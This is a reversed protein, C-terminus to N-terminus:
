KRRGGGCRELSARAPGTVQHQGGRALTRLVPVAGAPCMAGLAAAAAAQVAPFAASEEAARLLPPGAAADGIEGLAYAISAAVQVAAADGFARERERGLDEILGAVMRRDGMGGIMRVAHTRVAVPQARDRMVQVFLEAAGPAGCSALASLSARRVEVDDDGLAAGRLAKAPAARECRAGLASAAARRVRPWRDGALVGALAADGDGGRAAGSASAEGLAEAALERVGPDVDRTATALAALVNPARSRGLATVAVRRLANQEAAERGTAGSVAPTTLFRAVAEIAEDAGLAGAAELLRTRLEYGTGSGLRGVLGAVAAARAAGDPAERALLGVARWLDAERGETEESARQAATVVEPLVEAPRAGLALMAARRVGRPGRGAAAILAATAAPGPVQGLVAAVRARGAADARRDALVEGLAGAAPPGIAVLAAGFREADAPQVRAVALGRALEAAGSRSEALARRIRLLAAATVKPRQAEALLAAEGAAGMRALLTAAGAADEAGAAVLAALKEAQSGPELDMETLVALESIATHPKEAGRRDPYVQSVVVSVCDARVPEPLEIWYPEAPAGATRPDAPFVVRYLTKPGVVLGVERLRNHAAFSKPSAAHGPLLRVARVRASTLSSRATVFEGRGWHSRGEVWATAPDGDEIEVPPVLDGADEAGYQSSAALTRFDLPQAAPEVEAPPTRTATLRPADKPIYTPLSVSVFRRRAPDYREPYLYATRGDCRAVGARGHYRVLGFRGAEIYLSSEGDRGQSGVSGRWLEALKGGRWEFAAAERGATVALLLRGGERATEIRGETVGGGPAVPTWAIAAGSKGSVVQFTGSRDLTLQDNAGDGDVDASATAVPASGAAPPAKRGGRQAAAGGPAAVLAGAAALVMAGRRVTVPGPAGM